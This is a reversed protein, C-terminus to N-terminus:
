VLKSKDPNTLNRAEFVMVSLTGITSGHVSLTRGSKNDKAAKVYAAIQSEIINV